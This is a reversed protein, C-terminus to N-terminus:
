YLERWLSGVFVEAVYQGTGVYCKKEQADYSVKMFNTCYEPPIEIPETSRGDAHYIFPPADTVGTVPKSRRTSPVQAWRRVNQDARVCSQTKADWELYPVDPIPNQENWRKFVDFCYKSMGAPRNNKPHIPMGADDYPYCSIKNCGRETFRIEGTPCPALAPPCYYPRTNVNNEWYVDERDFPSINQSELRQKNAMITAYRAANLADLMTPGTATM